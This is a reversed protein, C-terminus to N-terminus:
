FTLIRYELLLFVALICGTIEPAKLNTICEFMFKVGEKQHIRMQTCLFPDIYCPVVSNDPKGEVLVYAGNPIKVEIPGETDKTVKM